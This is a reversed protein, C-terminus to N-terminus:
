ASRIHNKGPNMLCELRDMTGIFIKESEPCTVGDYFILEMPKYFIFIGSIM